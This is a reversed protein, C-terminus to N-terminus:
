EPLGVCKGCGGNYNQPLARGGSFSLDAIRARAGTTGSNPCKTILSALSRPGILKAAWVEQSVKDEGVASAGTKAGRAIPVDFWTLSRPRLKRYFENQTATRTFQKATKTLVPIKEWPSRSRVCRAFFNQSTTIWQAEGFGPISCCVNEGPSSETQGSVFMQSHQPFHPKLRRSSCIRRTTRRV